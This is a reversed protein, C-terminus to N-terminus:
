RLFALLQGGLRTVETAAPTVGAAKLDAQYNNVLHAVSESMVDLFPLPYIGMWMVIIIIPALIAIERRDLDVMERVDDKTIAGWIVRRYLLLMYTAGLVVGSAAFLAVWTNAKFAGTLVLFEGVFGATGPLGVSALMFVMFAFAYMPMNNALGGYRDMDRTHLRDYVVGVCLFLAGSVVGHSLMQFIAGEISQQNAAFVGITVYGMHAVSSYAIMKKMDQQVLAVLSTYVIAIISLTFVLPAFYASAEPLM